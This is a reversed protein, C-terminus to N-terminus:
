GRTRGRRGSRCGCRTRCGCRSRGRFQTTHPGAFRQHRDRAFDCGAAVHREGLRHDPEIARVGLGEHAAVHALQQHACLQANRRTLGESDGRAPRGEAFHLLPEPDPATCLLAVRSRGGRSRWPSGRWAHCRRRSCRCGRSCRRWRGRRGLRRSGVCCGQLGLELSLFRTDGLKLRRQLLGTGFEFGTNRRCRRRRTLELLAESIKPPQPTHRKRHDGQEGDHQATLRTTRSLSFLLCFGGVRREATRM